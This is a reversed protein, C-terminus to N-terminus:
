GSPRRGPRGRRAARAVRRSRHTEAVATLVASAAPTGASALGTVVEAQARDDGARALVALVPGAVALVGVSLGARDAARGPGGDPGPDASPGRRGSASAPLDRAARLLGAALVEALRAPHDALVAAADVDGHEIQWWRAPGGAVPHDLLPGLRVRVLDDDGVEDLIAFLHAARERSPLGDDPLDALTATLEDAAAAPDRRARWGAFAEDIVRRDAGEVVHLLDTPSLASLETRLPPVPEEIAM